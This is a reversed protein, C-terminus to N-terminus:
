PEQDELIAPRRGSRLDDIVRGLEEPSMYEDDGADDRFSTEASEDQNTHSLPVGVEQGERAVGSPEAAPVHDLTPM